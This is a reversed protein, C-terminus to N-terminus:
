HEKKIAEAISRLNATYDEALPDLKVVKGGVAQAVALATQSDYQEEAFIVKIGEQKATEIVEALLRPGPEKGEFEIPLQTIQYRHLLYGWAPHFVMLKDTELTGLVAALEQDLQDLESLFSALNERYYDTNHPDVASLEECITAAQTKVLLPDLWIHPDEQGGNMSRLAIGQRTDVVRLQPNLSEIKHLWAAEFPVGIRFYLVAEALTAMQQPLPDYTAPSQGPGVLVSVHVKDGGIQEVFYRQPLISVFIENRGGKNRENLASPYFWILVFLALAAASLAIYLPYKKM